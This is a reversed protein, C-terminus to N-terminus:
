KEQVDGGAKRVPRWLQVNVTEGDLGKRPYPHAIDISGALAHTDPGIRRALLAEWGPIRLRNNTSTLLWADRVLDADLKEVIRGAVAASNHGGLIWPSGLPKAGVAYIVGPGDGTFDLIEAGAPLDASRAMTRLARLSNGTRQDVLLVKGHEGVEAPVTQDGLAALQRYTHRVDTITLLQAYLAPLCLMCLSLALAGQSIMGQSSLRYLWLYLVSYAFISALASHLLIPNNTGFSFILPLSFLLLMLALGAYDAGQMKQAPRALRELAFLGCAGAAIVYLWLRSQGIWILAIVCGAVVALVLWSVTTRPIANGYRARLLRCAIGFLIAPVIVWPLFKILALRLQWVLNGLLESMGYGGRINLSAIGERLSALWGPFSLTLILLNLAFGATVFACIQFLRKWTWERNLLIFFACHAVVLLASTSAKSLFCVGLACGYIFANISAVRSGAEAQLTRLLCTTCVAMACLTLVNYSPARLTTSYGFYMLASAMPAVLYWFHRPIRSSTAPVPGSFRLLGYMLVAAGGLLLLLSLIRMGAISMGLARFPWELYAGFFTVTGTFERWHLYNHLYYSEDTFEFGRPAMWIYLSVQVLLILLAPVVWRSASHPIMTTVKPRSSYFPMLYAATAIVPPPRVLALISMNSLPTLSM